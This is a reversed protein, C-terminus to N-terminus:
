FVFISTGSLYRRVSFKSLDLLKAKVSGVTMIETDTKQHEVKFKQVIIIVNTGINRKVEKPKPSPSPSLSAKEPTMMLLDTLFANNVDYLCTVFNDSLHHSSGPQM